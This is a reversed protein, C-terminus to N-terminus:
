LIEKIPKYYNDNYKTNKIKWTSVEEHKFIWYRANSDDIIQIFVYSDIKKEPNNHSKVRVLLDWGDPRLTKVEIRKDLVMIDCEIVPNEDLLTNTEHPIGLKYLYAAFILEGKVGLPHVADTWEGAGRTTTYLVFNKQKRSEGVIEALENIWSPYEIHGKKEIKMPLKETTFNPFFRVFFIVKKKV